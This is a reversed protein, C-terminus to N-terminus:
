PILLSSDGFSLFRYENQLAHTYISRWDEGIFAAVLLILTSEPQHFNTILGECVKFKYGPFIFIETNGYLYDLEKNDAYNHIAEFAEKKTPNISRLQYPFLKDIKFSADPNNILKVGFWYLSELTRMSTTGVPITFGSEIISKILDVPVIMTENHMPHEQVSESKIPMFTGAGVHLTLQKQKIGADELQQLIDKTFHLGATPAAVAGEVKSYVTQYRNKDSEMVDRKIYPPLPTNGLNDILQAFSIQNNSWEFKVLKSDKNILTASLQITDNSIIINQALIEGEKWKKLNGIMCEWVVNKTSELSQSIEKNNAPKLLFIEIAAGTKKQLHLRAPIVKTNNFVLTANDPILSTIQKFIYDSIKGNKYYLLKSDDRKSTGEFAIKENPLDYLFKKLDIIPEKPM